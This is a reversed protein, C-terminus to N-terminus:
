CWRAARSPAAAAAAAVAGSMREEAADARQLPAQQVSCPPRSGVKSLIAMAPTQDAYPDLGSVMM